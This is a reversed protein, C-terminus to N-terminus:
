LKMSTDRSSILTHKPNIKKTFDMPAFLFINKLQKKTYFYM